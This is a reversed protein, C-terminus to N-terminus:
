LESFGPLEVPDVIEDAWNMTSMILRGDVSRIAALQQRSRMVIRAIAVQERDAMTRALLAYPKVTGPDPALWYPRDFFVPDLDALDVFEEIEITREAKPDLAELEEDDILVYHDPRIQYGKTIETREVESGDAESVLRQRVRSG